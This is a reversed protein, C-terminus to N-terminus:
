DDTLATGPADPDTRHCAATRGPGPEIVRPVEDTCPSPLADALRDPLDVSVFLRPMRFPRPRLLFFRVRLM